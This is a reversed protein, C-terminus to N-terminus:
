WPFIYSTVGHLHLLVSLVKFMNWNERGTKSSSGWADNYIGKKQVVNWIPVVYEAHKAVRRTRRSGEWGIILWLTNCIYVKSKVTTPSPPSSWSVYEWRGNYGSFYSLSLMCNTYFGCLFNKPLVLPVKVVKLSSVPNYIYSAINMSNMQIMQIMVSSKLIQHGGQVFLFPKFVKALWKAQMGTTGRAYRLVISLKESLSLM